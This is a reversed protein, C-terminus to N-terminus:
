KFDGFWIQNAVLPLSKLSVGYKSEVIFSDRNRKVLPVHDVRVSKSYELIPQLIYGILHRRKFSVDLVM